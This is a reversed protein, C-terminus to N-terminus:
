PTGLILSPLHLATLVAVTLATSVTARVIPRVALFLPNRTPQAM